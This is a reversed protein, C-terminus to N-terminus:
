GQDEYDEADRQRSLVGHVHVLIMRSLIRIITNVYNLHTQFVRAEGNRAGLSEMNFVLVDGGKIKAEAQTAFSLFGLSAPAGTAM